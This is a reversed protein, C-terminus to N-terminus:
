RCILDAAEWPRTALQPAEGTKKEAKDYASLSYLGWENLTLGQDQARSRLKVNHDKSGTFYLLAAGFSDPPVIRLDVQLGGATIVSAKTTGQGLVKEVEPFKTFAKAISEGGLTGSVSCVLDLDGITERRRRM